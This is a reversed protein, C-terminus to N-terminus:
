RLRKARLRSRWGGLKRVQHLLLFLTLAVLLTVASETDLPAHVGLWPGAAVRSAAARDDVALKLDCAETAGYQLLADGIHPHFWSDNRVNNSAINTLASM